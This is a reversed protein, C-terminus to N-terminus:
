EEEGWKFTRLLPKEGQVEAAVKVDRPVFGEPLRLEAFRGAEPIAQFHKFAFPIAQGPLADALGETLAALELAVEKGARQGTVTVRLQGQLPKDGKGVRSLLIKYRFLGPSDTAQVEFTKIRLGERRTAPALVGKYFALDQQQKYIQEELLKITLRSQENAQQAVQEGSSVVALRQRLADLEQDQELIRAQLPQHGEVLGQTTRAQWWGGAYFALPVALLLLWLALRVRRAQAPNSPRVEWGAM